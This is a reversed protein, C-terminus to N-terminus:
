FPIRCSGTVIFITPTGWFGPDTGQGLVQSGHKEGNLVLDRTEPLELSEETHTHTHTSCGTGLAWNHVLSGKM